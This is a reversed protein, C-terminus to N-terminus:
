CEDWRMEGGKGERASVSVLYGEFAACLIRVINGWTFIDRMYGGGRRRGAESWLITTGGQEQLGEGPPALYCLFFFLPWPVGLVGLFLCFPGM